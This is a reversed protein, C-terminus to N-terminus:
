IGKYKQWKELTGQELTQQQSYVNTVQKKSSVVNSLAPWIAAFAQEWSNQMNIAFRQKQCTMFIGELFGSRSMISDATSVTGLAHVDPDPVNGDEADDFEDLSALAGAPTGGTGCDTLAPTAEVGIQEKMIKVICNEELKQVIEPDQSCQVTKKKKHDPSSCEPDPDSRKSRQTPADEIMKNRYKVMDDTSSLAFTYSMWSAYCTGQLRIYSSSYHLRIYSNFHDVIYNIVSDMPRM